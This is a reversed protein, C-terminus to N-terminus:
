ASGGREVRLHERDLGAAGAVEEMRDRIAGRQSATYRLTTTAQTHGLAGGLDKLSGGSATWLTAFVHRLDKVRVQPLGAAERAARFRKDIASPGLTFLRESEARGAAQTRLIALAPASLELTRLRSKAKTDPVRVTGNGFDVHAPTLRLLPGRDIGTLIALSVLPRLEPDCAALLRRIEAASLTIDRSDDEHPFVVDATIARKEAKGVEYALVGKIAAYLSRHVSNRRKGGAVATHLLDTINKPSTLWSLRAGRPLLDRLQELGDVVRRDRVQPAYRTLVEPLPPDNAREVLASLRREKAAVYADRLTYRGEVIGRVVAPDVLAVERLWAEMAAAQARNTLGTSWPGVRGFGPLTPWLYWHRRDNKKFPAV